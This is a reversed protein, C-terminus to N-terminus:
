AVALPAPPEPQQVASAGPATSDQAPQARPALLAATQVLRLLRLSFLGGAAAGSPDDVQAAVDRGLVKFLDDLTGPYEIEPLQRGTLIQLPTRAGGAPAAQAGYQIGAEFDYSQGDATVIRGQGIFQAGESPNLSAAGGQGAGQPVPSIDIGTAGSGLATTTVDDGFLAKAFQRALTSAADGSLRALGAACADLGDRSLTVPDEPLAPSSGPASDHAPEAAARQAAAYSGAPDAPRAEALKILSNM